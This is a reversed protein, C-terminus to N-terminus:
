ARKRAFLAILLVGACAFVGGGIPLYLELDDLAAGLDAGWIPLVIEEEQINLAFLTSDRWEALYNVVKKMQEFNLDFEAQKAEYEPGDRDNVAAFWEKIGEESTLDTWLALGDAQSLQDVYAFDIEFVLDSGLMSFLPDDLLYGIHGWQGIFLDKYLADPTTYTLGFEGAVGMLVVPLVEPLWDVVDDYITQTISLDGILTTDGAYWRLFEGGILSNWVSKVQTLNEFTSDVEFNTAAADLSGLGGPLLAMQAWQALIYDGVTASTAAPMMENWGLAGTILAGVAPFLVMTIYGAVADLMAQAPLGYAALMATMTPPDAMAAQYTALFVLIGPTGDTLPDEELIGVFPPSGSGMCLAGVMPLTYGIPTGANMSESIGPIPTGYNTLINDNFLGVLAANLDAYPAPHLANATAYIAGAATSGNIFAALNAPDGGFAYQMQTYVGDLFLPYAMDQIAPELAPIAQAEIDGLTSGVMPEILFSNAMARGGVGATIIIAGLFLIISGSIVGGIGKKAM